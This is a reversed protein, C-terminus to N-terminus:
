GDIAENVKFSIDQVISGINIPGVPGDLQTYRLSERPQTHITITGDWRQSLMIM